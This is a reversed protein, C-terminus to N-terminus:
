TFSSCCPRQLLRNVGRGEGARRQELPRATVACCTCRTQLGRVCRSGAKHHMAASFFDALGGTVAAIDGRFAGFVRFAARIEHM